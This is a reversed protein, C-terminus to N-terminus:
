IDQYIPFKQTFNHVKNKLEKIQKNSEAFKEIEETKTKPKFRKILLTRNILKAITKMDKKKM